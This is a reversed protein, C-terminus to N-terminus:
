ISYSRRPMEALEDELEAEQFATLDLSTVSASRGLRGGAFVSPRACPQQLLLAVYEQSERLKAAEAAAAAAAEVREMEAAIRAAREAERRVFEAAKTEMEATNRAIWQAGETAWATNMASKVGEQTGEYAKFALSTVGEWNGDNERFQQSTVKTFVERTMLVRSGDKLLYGVYQLTAPVEPSKQVDGM